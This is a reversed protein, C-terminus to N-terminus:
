TQLALVGAVEDVAAPWSGPELTPRIVFKSFGVELFAEIQAALGEAGVAVLDEAPVDTRRGAIVERVREDIPGTVFSLNVGFHEPDIERGADAAHGDGDGHAPRAGDLGERQGFVATTLPGDPDSVSLQSQGTGRVETVVHIYGRSVFFADPRQGGVYPNQTLLVPFTGDVRMRTSPDAPYGVNAHLVVGDDMVVPIGREVAM